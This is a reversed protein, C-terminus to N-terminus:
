VVLSRLVFGLWGVINNVSKFGNDILLCRSNGFFRGNYWGFAGFREFGCFGSCRGLRDFGSSGSFGYNCFHRDWGVRFWLRRWYLDFGNFCGNYDFWNILFRRCDFWCRGCLFWNCRWSFVICYSLFLCVGGWQAASDCKIVLWDVVSFGFVFAILSAALHDFSDEELWVGRNSQCVWCKIILIWNSKKLLIKFGRKVLFGGGIGHKKENSSSLLLMLLINRSM